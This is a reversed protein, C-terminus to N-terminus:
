ERTHDTAQDLAILLQKGSFPKPVFADAGRALAEDRVIKTALGSIAIIGVREDLERLREILKRGDGFPMMLDTLVADITKRKAEFVELAEASNKATLVAYGHNRLLHEVMHVIAVEDDVVLVCRGHGDRVELADAPAKEQSDKSCAPLYVSFTSGNGPQSDVTVFGNHEEAIGLVTSLGLGTGKGQPKTTYFPEFLREQVEPPIGTGSDAIRLVVYRGPKAKVHIRSSKEDLLRNEIGLSLIGGEPMADRANVCLNMLIQHLQSPDGMVTWPRANYDTYLQINKPFTQEVLRAIEKLVHRPQIPGKQSDGGRAFTLLQKITEAGRNVSAEMMGLLPRYTENQRLGEQLMSIGMVVPSLINNLDHAVGSALTGVSELRQARLYQTEIRKRDTVDTCVVLLSKPKGGADKVLTSRSDMLRQKGDASRVKLEGSWEGRNKTQSLAAQFIRPEVPCLVKELTRGPDATMVNGTLQEAMQNLYTVRGEMDCVAIVDRAQDLLAAQERIREDTLKQATVDEKVGLFHTIVGAKDRIPSIYGREWYFEGDKRRNLIEGRWEGGSTITQWMHRYTALPTQGSKLISPTHGLVDTASYGTLAEFKPNVYEIKGQLNTILIAAPSQMVAQSLTLIRAEAVKLQTIDTVTFTIAMPDSPDLASSHILVDYVRGDKHRWQSETSSPSRENIAGYLVEGARAFDADSAYLIRTSQGLLEEMIYGSMECIRDNVETLIRNRAVGVGSPLARFISSLRAEQLSLAQEVQKRKSIDRSVGLVCIGNKADGVLTTVVETWILTGDRRKQQIEHRDTIVRPDGALFAERRAPISQALAAWSEPSMTEKPRTKMVEESTFGRLRKVSPSVYQFELTGADLLWVVDAINEALFRHRAESEQLAAEVRKRETIDQITGIIRTIQGDGNARLEGLGHVWRVEQDRLRVIRYEKDFHIGQGLVKETLYGRMEERNEPHVMGLWGSFDYTFSEPSIGLIENLIESSSWRDASVDFEYSGLRAIRRSDELQQMSNRLAAESLIRDTIDVACFTVGAKPDGPAIPSTSILINMLSGDKRLWHTEFHATENHSIKRGVSDFEEESAYIRRPSEGIWDELTYGTMVCFAQNAELVRRNAVVGIGVPVTRFLSDLKAQRENVAQQAQHRQRDKELVTLAFSLDSAAEELLMVERAQFFGAETAYLVLAGKVQDEVRIPFAAAAGVGCQAALPHWHKMRPDHALDNCLATRGERIARGTPGQGAPQDLVSLHLDRVMNAIEGRHAVMAIESSGPDVWGIWALKFGQYTLAAQCVMEFVEERSRARVMAQNIQSLVAYLRNLREVERQHRRGVTVDLLICHVRGLTGEKGSAVQANIVTAVRASNRCVLELEIGDVRGSALLKIWHQRYPERDSPVLFEEFPRGTVEQSTYGLMNCWAPNVEIVRGERDLSQHAVPAGEYLRRFHKENETLRAHLHRRVLWRGLWLVLGATSLVFLLEGATPPASHHYHEYLVFWTVAIWVYLAGIKLAVFSDSRRM